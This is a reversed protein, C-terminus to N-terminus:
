RLESWRTLSWAGSGVAKYTSGSPIEAALTTRNTAAGHASNTITVVGDIELLSSLGSGDYVVAVLIEFDETNTYVVNNARSAFVDQWARVPHQADFAQKTTLATMGATNDVGAEAIAQSAKFFSSVRYHGAGSNYTALVEEGAVLYDSPLVSGDSTRIDKVGLGAQNVTSAGTNTSGPVFRIRLGDALQEPAQNSGVIGLVYADAAGSDTYFDGGGVYSAIAKGLQNLDGSSLTLGHAEIINELEKPVENWDVATLVGTGGGGGLVKNSIEKM